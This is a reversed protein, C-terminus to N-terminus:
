RARSVRSSRMTAILISGAADGAIRLAALAEIAFGAAIEREIM